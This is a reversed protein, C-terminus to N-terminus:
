TRMPTSPGGARPPATRRSPALGARLRKLTAVDAAHATQPGPTEVIFPVQATAPHRLLARFPEAGIQGAGINEHRDRRSGCPDKADNAHILRLRGGGPLAARSQV